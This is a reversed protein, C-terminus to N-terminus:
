EMPALILSCPPPSPLVSSILTEKKKILSTGKLSAPTCLLVDCFSQCYKLIDGLVSFVPFVVVDLRGEDM